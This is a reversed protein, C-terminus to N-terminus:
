GCGAWCGDSFLMSSSELLFDLLLVLRVPNNERIFMGQFGHDKLPKADNTGQFIPLKKSTTRVWHQSLWLVVLLFQFQNNWLKVTECMEELNCHWWTRIEVAHIHNFAPGCRPPASICRGDVFHRHVVPNQPVINEITKLCLWRINGSM